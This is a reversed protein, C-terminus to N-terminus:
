DPTFVSSVEADNGSWWAAGVVNILKGGGVWIGDDDMLLIAIMKNM